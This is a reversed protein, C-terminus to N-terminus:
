SNPRPPQSPGLRPKASRRTPIFEVSDIEQGELRRLGDELQARTKFTCTTLKPDTVIQAGAAAAIARTKDCFPILLRYRRGESQLLAYLTGRSSEEERYWMVFYSGGLPAFGMIHDGDRDTMSTMGDSRISVRILQADGPKDAPVARYVGPPLAPRSESAAYFNDGAWCAALPL